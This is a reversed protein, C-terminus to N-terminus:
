KLPFEWNGQIVHGISPTTVVVTSSPSLDGGVTVSSQNAVVNYSPDKAFNASGHVVNQPTGDFTVTVNSTPGTAMVSPSKEVNVFKIVTMGATSEASVTFHEGGIVASQGALLAAGTTKLTFGDNSSRYFPGFRILAGSQIDAAAYVAGSSGAPLGPVDAPAPIGNSEGLVGYAQPLVFSGDPNVIRPIGLMQAFDTPVDTSTKYYVVVTKNDLAKSSQFDVTIGATSRSAVAPGNNAAIAALPADGQAPPAGLSVKTPSGNSAWAVAGGIALALIPVLIMAARTPSIFWRESNM